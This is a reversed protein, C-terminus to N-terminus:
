GGGVGFIWLHLFGGAAGMIAGHAYLMWEDEKFASRMMEVFDAPPLEKTRIAILTRIRDSQRRSFEADRFPTLTRGVAEDAFGSKIADYGRGGLAVRAAGRAFGAARDIAPSLATMLLQRTRDGSPGDVLFDGIRELTIVDDAIIRAYVEAAQDQRRLFLGHCRIGFYRTPEAPEFILWMGLLNTTWGVVVGLVPLLWWQHFWHDAFAVPIGLLLGFVFGFHVMLRLEREGIDKFVRVVLEPNKRFHEIVMIKPDLLQDIHTGIEDTVTKVVSPLQSQVRRTITAKAPQPLDRWFAPNTRRMVDDVIGPIDPAFMTVIHEGITDPELQQYFERPTGLKAIAKDVAISGMKAARAPIIGQWGLGGQLVGPVEQVKRPLISGIERMGPIKVGHFRIPAFLMVLGTWNILWGIVATFLPISAFAIWEGRTDLDQLWWDVHRLRALVDDLTASM